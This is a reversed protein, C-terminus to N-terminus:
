CGTKIFLLFRDHLMQCDTEGILYKKDEESVTCYYNSSILKDVEEKYNDSCAMRGNMSEKDEDQSVIIFPKKNELLCFSCDESFTIVKKSRLVDVLLSPEESIDFGDVYERLFAMDDVKSRPRVRVLVKSKGLRKKVYLLVGRHINKNSEKIMTPLILLDYAANTNYEAISTTISQLPAGFTIVREPAIGSQIYQERERESCCLAKDCYLPFYNFSPKFFCGHQLMITEIGKKKLLHVIPVFFFKQHELLWKTQGNKVDGFERQALHDYVFFTFMQCWFSYYEDAAIKNKVEKMIQSKKMAKRAYLVDKLSFTMFISDVNGKFFQHYNLAAKLHFSPLYVVQYKMGHAIVDITRTRFITDPCSIFIFDLGNLCYKQRLGKIGFLLKSIFVLLVYLSFLLQAKRKNGLSREEYEGKLVNFTEEDISLMEM